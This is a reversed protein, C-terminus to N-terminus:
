ANESQLYPMRSVAQRFKEVADEAQKKYEEDYFAIGLAKGLAQYQKTIKDIQYLDEFEIFPIQLRNHFDEAAFRAEHIYYWISIRRRWRRINKMTRADPFRM